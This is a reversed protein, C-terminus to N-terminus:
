TPWRGHEAARRVAETDAGLSPAGADALWETSGPIPKWAVARVASLASGDAADIVGVQGSAQESADTLAETVSRVPTVCTDAQSLLATWHDRPQTAFIAALEDHLQSQAALDYQLAALDTRGLLECIRVFFQQELAGVAVYRDDACKYLDYCALGGSLMQGSAPEVSEGRLAAAGQAGALGLLAYASDLMSVQARYGASTARANSAASGGSEETSEDGSEDSGGGDRSVLGALVALAVQTGAMLDAAQVGPMAPTGGIPASLSLLGSLAQANLDHGPWASREDDSYAVLSAHVLRPNAATLVDDGLGLRDLVGPRFSDVLVDALKVLSLFSERDTADKLDYQVSRKGRNLSAHAASGGGTYPPAVRTGDGARTDEIKIVDAGLEALLLTAYNGPLLRTLDLVKVGALPARPSPHSM